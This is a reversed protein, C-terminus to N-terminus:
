NFNHSEDNDRLYRVTNRILMEPTLSNRLSLVEKAKSIDAFNREVEGKRRNLKKIKKDNMHLENMVIEAVESIYIENGSALHIIENEAYENDIASLMANVLDQVYIFDRSVNGFVAIDSGNKLQNYFKNVVGIKHLCNEGLVNGFRFITYDLNYCNRYANIYGECALKSAGYPSIPKPVSDENVPPLAEGMLAGGTSSFLLRKVGVRRCYELVSITGVVNIHLNHLPNKISEVVNGSAALHCVFDPRYNKPIKESIMQIDGRITELQLKDIYQARGLSFDDYILVDHGKNSALKAFNSGVFGAGGTILLKM